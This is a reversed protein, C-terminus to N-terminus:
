RPLQQADGYYPQVLLLDARSLDADSCILKTVQTDARSCDFSPGLQVVLTPPQM